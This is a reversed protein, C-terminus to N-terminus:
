RQGSEDCGHKGRAGSVFVAAAVACVAIKLITGLHDGFPLAENLQEEYYDLRRELRSVTSSATAVWGRAQYHSPLRTIWFDVAGTWHLAFIGCLLLISIAFV